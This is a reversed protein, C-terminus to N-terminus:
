KGYMKLVEQATYAVQHSFTFDPIDRYNELMFKDMFELADAVKKPARDAFRELWRVEVANDSVIGPPLTLAAEVNELRAGSLGSIDVNVSAEGSWAHSSALQIFLLLLFLKKYM